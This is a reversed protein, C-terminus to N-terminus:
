VGGGDSGEKYFGGDVKYSEVMNKGATLTKLFFEPKLPYVGNVSLCFRNTNYHM